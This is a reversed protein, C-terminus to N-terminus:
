RRRNFQRLINEAAERSDKPKLKPIPPLKGPKSKDRSKGAPDTTTDSDSPEADSPEAAGAKDTDTPLSPKISVLKTEDLKGVDTDHLAAPLREAEDLWQSIDDEQSPEAPGKAQPTVRKPRPPRDVAVPVTFQIEFHLPGVQLQDGPKLECPEEIVQGNVSTGNRSGLDRISVSSKGVTIECHRRSVLDSKTRLYCEENRGIVFAGEALGIDSRGRSGSTLKLRVDM